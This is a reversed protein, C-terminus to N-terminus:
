RHRAVGMRLRVAPPVRYETLMAETNRLGCAERQVVLYWLAKGVADIYDDLSDAAM